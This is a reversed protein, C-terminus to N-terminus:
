WQHDSSPSTPHRTSLLEYEQKITNLEEQYQNPEIEALKELVSKLNYFNSSDSNDLNLADRYCQLAGKFDGVKVLLGGLEVYSNVFTPDSDISAQYRQFAAVFDGSREEQIGVLYQYRSLVHDPSLSIAEEYCHIAEQLEGMYFYRNGLCELKIYDPLMDANEALLFDGEDFQNSAFKLTVANCIKKTDNM